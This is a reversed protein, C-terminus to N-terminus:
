GCLVKQKNLILLFHFFINCKHAEWATICISCMYIANVGLYAVERQTKLQSVIEKYLKM